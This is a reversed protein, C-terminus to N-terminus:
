YPIKTKIKIKKKNYKGINKKNIIQRNRIILNMKMLAAKIMKINWKKIMGVDKYILKTKKRIKKRVIKM